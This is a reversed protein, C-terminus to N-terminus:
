RELDTFIHPYRKKMAATLERDTLLHALQSLVDSPHAESMTQLAGRLENHFASKLDKIRILLDRGKPTLAHLTARKDVTSQSSITLGKAALTALLRSPSGSECILHSGVERTSLPGHMGVIEIAEAQSTTLDLKGFLNNLQRNGQRQLALILYRFEEPYEAISRAM